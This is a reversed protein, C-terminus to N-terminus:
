NAALPYPVTNQLLEKSAIEQGIECAKLHLIVAAWRISQRHTHSTSDAHECFGWGCDVDAGALVASGGGILRNVEPGTSSTGASDPRAILRPM